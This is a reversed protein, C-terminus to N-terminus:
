GLSTGTLPVTRTIGGATVTATSTTTDITTSSTVSVGPASAVVFGSAFELSAEGAAATVNGNASVQVKVDSGPKGNGGKGDNGNNGNGGPNPNSGPNPTSGGEDTAGGDTTPAPPTPAPATPTPAPPPPTVTGTIPAPRTGPDPASDSRGSADRDSVPTARPPTSRLPTDFITPEDATVIIRAPDDLDIERVDVRTGPVHVAPEVSWALLLVAAGALMMGAALSSAWARSGVTWRTARGFGMRVAAVM